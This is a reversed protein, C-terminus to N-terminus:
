SRFPDASARQQTASKPDACGARASLGSLTLAAVVATGILLKKMSSSRLLTAAKAKEVASLRPSEDRAAFTRKMSSHM